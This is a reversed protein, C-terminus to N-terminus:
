PIFGERVVTGDPLTKEVITHDFLEQRKSITGPDPTESPWKAGYWEKWWKEWRERMVTKLHDPANLLNTALQAESIPAALVVSGVDGSHHGAGARYGLFQAEQPWVNKQKINFPKLVIGLQTNLWELTEDARSRIAVVIPLGGESSKTLARMNADGAADVAFGARTLAPTVRAPELTKLEDPAAKRLRPDVADQATSTRRVAEALEAEAEAELAREAANKSASAFYDGKPRRSSGSSCSNAARESRDIERERVERRCATGRVSGISVCPAGLPLSSVCGRRDVLLPRARADAGSPGVDRM